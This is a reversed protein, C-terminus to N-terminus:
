SVLLYGKSRITKIYKYPPKRDNLAKRLASIRMDLSRDGAGFPFGRLAINLHDRHIVQGARSALLELLSFESPSLDVKNGGVMVERSGSYMVIDQFIQGAGQVDKGSFFTGNVQGSVDCKILSSDWRFNVEIGDSALLPNYHTHNGITGGAVASEFKERSDERINEPVFSDFWAKGVISEYGSKLIKCGSQNIYAVQHDANLVIFITEMSDLYSLMERMAPFGAEGLTLTKYLLNAEVKM